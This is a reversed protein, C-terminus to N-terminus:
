NAALASPKSYKKKLYAWLQFASPHNDVLAQDDDDLGRMMLHLAKANDKLYKTKKELTLVIKKVKAIDEIDFEQFGETIDEATVICCIYAEEVTTVEFTHALEL